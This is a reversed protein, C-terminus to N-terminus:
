KLGRRSRIKSIISLARQEPVVQWRSFTTQWIAKGATNSRLVDALDFSEAVPVVGTITVLDGKFEVDEVQGRKSKIVKVTEKQFDIPVIVEINYIPELITAKAKEFGLFIADRVMSMLEVRNREAMDASLDLAKIEVLTMGIPEACLPGREMAWNFGDVIADKAEAFNTIDISSILANGRTDKYWSDEQTSDEPLPHLAIQIANHNNPSLHKESLTYSERVTERYLVIPDSANVLIGFAEIDKLAIELHLLGLGSLLYEGTQTNVSFVLNPDSQVLNEVFSTLRPLDKTQHPEIAITVVAESAYTIKEFPVMGEVQQQGTITDGPRVKDFGIIGCINGATLSPISVQRSGMFLTVRQAKFLTDSPFIRLQTGRHITGSFVRGVAVLGRKSETVVKSVGIILPGERDCRRLAQGAPSSIEGKWIYAIRKEQANKPSPLRGVIMDLIPQHIPLLRSLNEITNEQYNEIINQFQLGAKQMLEVTFAWKHLASGFAVTGADTGVKWEGVDDSEVAFSIVKNVNRIIRALRDQIANPPLKLERILRDIKNVFLVPKVRERIASRIVSETQAMVGEVADVVIIAGDIARLARTVKGSFDVHGPTDVLNVM